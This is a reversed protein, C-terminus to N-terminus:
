KIRIRCGRDLSLSGRRAGFAIPKPEAKLNIAVSTGSITGLEDLFLASFETKQVLCFVFSLATINSMPKQSEKESLVNYTEDQNGHVPCFTVKRPMNLTVYWHLGFLLFDEKALVVVPM